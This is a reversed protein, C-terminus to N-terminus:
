APVREFTLCWVWPNAEWSGAGNISNWLGRYAQRPDDVVMGIGTDLLPCAWGGTTDSTKAIRELGEAIADAKSIDQLREARVEVLELLIRSAWRPMHISPIWHPGPEGSACVRCRSRECSLDPAPDTARYHPWRWVDEGDISGDDPTHKWPRDKPLPPADGYERSWREIALTERVWLREGPQGYPCQWGADCGLYGDHNDCWGGTTDCGAMTAGAAPQRKVVRRTQTKTGALLARVMPGSFLIPREKVVAATTM